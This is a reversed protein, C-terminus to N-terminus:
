CDGRFRVFTVDFAFWYDLLSGLMSLVPFTNSLIVPCNKACSPCRRVCRSARPRPSSRVNFKTPCEEVIENREQQLQHNDRTGAIDNDFLTRTKALTIRSHTLQFFSLTNTSPHVSSHSNHPRLSFAFFLTSPPQRSSSPAVRLIGVLAEISGNGKRSKDERNM